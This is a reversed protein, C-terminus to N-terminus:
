DYKLLGVSQENIALVLKENLKQNEEKLQNALRDKKNFVEDKESLISSLSAIESKLRKNERELILLNKMEEGEPQMSSTNEKGNNKTTADNSAFSNNNLSHSSSFPASSRQLDSPRLEIKRVNKKSNPDFFDTIKKDKATNNLSNSTTIEPSGDSHDSNGHADVGKKIITKLKRPKESTQKSESAKPVEDLKRKMSRKASFDKSSLNNIINEKKDSNSDDLRESTTLNLSNPNNENMEEKITPLSLMNNMNNQASTPEVPDLSGKRRYIEMGNEELSSDDDKLMDISELPIFSNLTVNPPINSMGINKMVNPPPQGRIRAELDIIKQGIPESSQLM